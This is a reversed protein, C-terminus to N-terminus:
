ASICALAGFLLETAVREPFRNLCMISKFMRMEVMKCVYMSSHMRTNGQEVHITWKDTEWGKGFLEVFFRLIGQPVEDEAVVFDEQQSNHYVCIERGRVEIEILAKENGLQVPFFISNSAKLM